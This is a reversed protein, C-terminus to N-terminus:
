DGSLTKPMAGYNGVTGLYNMLRPQGDKREVVMERGAETCGPFRAPETLSDRTCTEWKPSTGTPIEVAMNYTGDANRTEYGTIFNKEGVLAHENLYRVGSTTAESVPAPGRCAALAPLLLAAGSVLILPRFPMPDCAGGRLQGSDHSDRAIQRPQLGPRCRGLTLSGRARPQRRVKSELTLAETIVRSMNPAHAAATGSTDRASGGGRLATGIAKVIADGGACTLAARSSASPRTSILSM